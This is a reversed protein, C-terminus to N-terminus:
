IELHWVSEAEYHFRDTIQCSMGDIGVDNVSSLRDRNYSIRLIVVFLHLLSLMERDLSETTGPVAVDATSYAMMRKSRHVLQSSHMMPLNSANRWFCPNYVVVSETHM